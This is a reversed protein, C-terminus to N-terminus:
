GASRRSEARDACVRQGRQEAYRGALERADEIIKSVAALEADDSRIAATRCCMLAREKKWLARRPYLLLDDATRTTQTSAAAPGQEAALGSVPMSLVMLLSLAASMLKKM